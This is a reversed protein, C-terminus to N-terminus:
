RWSRVIAAPLLITSQTTSRFLVGTKPFELVRRPNICYEPQPSDCNNIEM